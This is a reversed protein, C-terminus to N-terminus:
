TLAWHEYLHHHPFGQFCDNGGCVCVNNFHAALTYICQTCNSPLLRVRCAPHTVLPKIFLKPKHFSQWGGGLALLSWPNPKHMYRSKPLLMRNNRRLRLGLPSPVQEPSKHVRFSMKNSSRPDKHHLTSLVPCPYNAESLMFWRPSIQGVWGALQSIIECCGLYM